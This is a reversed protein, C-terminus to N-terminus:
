PTSAKIAKVLIASMKQHDKISPHWSCGTLELEPYEVYQIHLGQNKLKQYISYVLPRLQDKPWLYHASLIFQAKPKQRHLEMVFASYDQIFAQNLTSDNWPETPKPSTSFDNTGLGIIVFDADYNPSLSSDAFQLLKPYLKRYNTEPNNGNWNREIGMGSAANAQFDANLSQATLYAFSQKFDTQANTELWTCERSTSTNGIAATYSDGLFELKLKPTPSSIWHGQGLNLQHIWGAQDRFETEKLIQIQHVGPGLEYHFPRLGPAPPIKQLLKADVMVSYFNQADEIQFNLEQAQASGRIGTGPWTMGYSSNQIKVRGLLEPSALAQGLLLFLLHKTM